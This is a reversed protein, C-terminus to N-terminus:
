SNVNKLSENIKDFFKTRGLINFHMGDLSYKENFQDGNEDFLNLMDIGHVYKYKKSESIIYDRIDEIMKNSKEFTNLKGKISDWYRVNSLDRVHHPAIVYANKFNYKVRINEISELYDNIYQSPHLGNERKIFADNSGFMCVINECSSTNIKYKEIKNEMDKIASWITLGDRYSIGIWEENRIIRMSSDPASQYSNDFAFHIHSDGIILNM